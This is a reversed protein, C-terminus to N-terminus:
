PRNPNFGPIRSWPKWHSSQSHCPQSEPPPSCAGPSWRGPPRRGGPPRWPVTEQPLRRAWGPWQLETSGVTKLRWYCSKKKSSPAHIIQPFDLLNPDNFIKQIDCFYKIWYKIQLLNEHHKCYSPKPSVSLFSSQRRGDLGYMEFISYAVCNKATQIVAVAEKSFTLARGTLNAIRQKEKSQYFYQIKGYLVPPAIDAWSLEIPRQLLSLGIGM